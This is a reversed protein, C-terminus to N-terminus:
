RKPANEQDRVRAEVTAMVRILRDLAGVKGWRVTWSDWLENFAVVQSEEAFMRILKCKVGNDTRRKTARRFAEKDRESLLDM